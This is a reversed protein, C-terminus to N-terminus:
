NRWGFRWRRERWCLPLRLRVEGLKCRFKKQVWCDCNRQHSGSINGGHLVGTSRVRYQATKLNGLSIHTSPNYLRLRQPVVNSSSWLFSDIKYNGFVPTQAEPKHWLSLDFTRCASLVLLILSEWAEMDLVESWLYAQFTCM